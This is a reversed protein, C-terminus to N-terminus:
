RRPTPSPRRISTTPWAARCGSWRSTFNGSTESIKTYSDVSGNAAIATTRTMTWDLGDFVVLVIRKWGADAAALQLAHIDTQDFYEANPNLTGEPEQGYLTALRQADRYISNAGDIGSLTIGFSYVPILRNSHSSYSVYREPQDGWYGWSAAGTQEAAVQMAAVRDLPSSPDAANGVVWALCALFGVSCRTWLRM